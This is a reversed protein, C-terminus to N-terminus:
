VMPRPADVDVREHRAIEVLDRDGVRAAADAQFEQGCIKSRKLWCSDPVPLLKAPSPMPRVM